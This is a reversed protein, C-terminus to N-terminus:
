WKLNVLVSSCYSILRAGRYVETIADEDIIRAFWDATGGSAYHQWDGTVPDLVVLVVNVPPVGNVCLPDLAEAILRNLETDPYSM